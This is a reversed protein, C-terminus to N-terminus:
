GLRLVRRLEDHEVPIARRRAAEMLSATTPGLARSEVLARLASMGHVTGDDTSRQLQPGLKGLGETGALGPPLMGDVLEIALRGAALAVAPDRYAFMVDFWGPHGPVARTKGRTVTHGALNQLALAVHEIVHGVWTGGRMRAVFGGSRGVSCGHLLLAPVADLLRDTFGHLKTTPRDRLGGLDLRIRVMPTRSYRHPGTYVAREIVRMPLHPTTSM